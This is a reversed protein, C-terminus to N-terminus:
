PVSAARTTLKPLVTITEGLRIERDDATIILAELRHEGIDRLVCSGSMATSIPRGNQMWLISAGKRLEDALEASFSVWLPTVGVAASLRVKARPNGEPASAQVPVSRAPTRREPRAVPQYQRSVPAASGSDTKAVAVPTTPQVTASTRPSSPDGAIPKVTPTNKQPGSADAREGGGFIANSGARSGTNKTLVPKRPVVLDGPLRALQNGVPMVDHMVLNNMPPPTKPDVGITEGFFVSAVQPTRQHGLGGVYKATVDFRHQRYWAVAEMSEERCIMIDHEGFFIGVRMDRYKPAQMPDMMESSYNSGRVAICSFREPHRNVMYHAFYGGSSFSTSLVRTPDAQTRRCIDDMVSLIVQEDRRVSAKDATNLPPILITTDCTLLVPACVIFGYRDAEEQWERIQPGADDYPRLGHFTMILPWRGGNPKQGDNKVYDEPLYLFYNAGTVGETLYMVKGNGPKQPVACGASVCLAGLLLLPIWKRGDMVFVGTRNVM